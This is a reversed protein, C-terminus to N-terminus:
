DLSSPSYDGEVWAEGEPGVEKKWVPVIQKLRDIGYRTAEFVGSDRHASTCAILVTPAGPDLRGVRQVIAIGEVAPWKSRIEDAVQRMKEEAMPAYAEYDLYQTEHIGGRETQGRVFGTFACAAGTTPLILSRLLTNQDLEEETIKFLTPRPQEGGSVPPFFAVEDGDHLQQSAPAFEKNVAVVASGMHPSLAPHDQLVRELLDGVTSGATLTLEEEKTGARDRLTAFYLIRVNM